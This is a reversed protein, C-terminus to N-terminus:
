RRPAIAGFRGIAPSGDACASRDAAPRPASLTFPSAVGAVRPRTAYLTLRLMSWFAHVCTAIDEYSRRVTEADQMYPDSIDISRRPEPDFAGLMRLKNRSTPFAALCEAENTFDMVVIVDADRVLDATLQAARHDGLDVGSQRAAQIGRPDAPRGIRAHLGASGVTVNTMGAASALQRCYAAAFASRLINGHCVFVVNASGAIPPLFAGRSSSRRTLRQIKRTVFIARADAGLGRFQRIFRRMAPPFLAAIGRALPARASHPSSARTTTVLPPISYGVVLGDRTVLYPFRAPFRL